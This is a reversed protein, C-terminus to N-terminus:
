GFVEDSGLLEPVDVDRKAHPPAAERLQTRKGVRKTQDRGRELRPQRRGGGVASSDIESLQKVTGAHPHEAARDPFSGEVPQAYEGFVARIVVVDFAQVAPRRWLANREVESQGILRDVRDDQGASQEVSRGIAEGDRYPAI